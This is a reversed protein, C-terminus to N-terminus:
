TNVRPFLIFNRSLINAETNIVAQNLSVRKGLLRYSKDMIKLIYRSKPIFLYIEGKPDSFVTPLVRKSEAFMLSIRIDSINRGDLSELRVKQLPPKGLSLLYIKVVFLLFIFALIFGNIITFTYLGNSFFIGILGLLFLLPGIASLEYFLSQIDTELLLYKKTRVVSVVLTANERLSRIIFENKRLATSGMIHKNQGTNLIKWKDTMLNIFFRGVSLKKYSIGVDNSRSFVESKHLGHLMNISFPLYKVTKNTQVDWFLISINNKNKRETWKRMFFSLISGSPITIGITGLTFAGIEFVIIMGMFLLPDAIVRSSKHSIILDKTVSCSSIIAKLRIARGNERSVIGSGETSVIGSLGDIWVSHADKVKWSINVFNDTSKNEVVEFREITPCSTNPDIAGITNSTDIFYGSVFNFMATVIRTNESLDRKQSTSKNIKIRSAVNVPIGSINGTASVFDDLGDEIIQAGEVGEQFLTYEVKENSLYVSQSQRIVMYPIEPPNVKVKITKSLTVDTNSVITLFYTGPIYFKFPKQIHLSGSNEVRMAFSSIYDVSSESTKISFTGVFDTLSNGFNDRVFLSLDPQDFINIVSPYTIDIYNTTKLQQVDSTGLVQSNENKDPIDLDLSATIGIDALESLLIDNELNIYSQTSNTNEFIIGRQDKSLLYAINDTSKIDGSDDIVMSQFANRSQYNVTEKFKALLIHSGPHAVYSITSGSEVTVSNVLLLPSSKQNSESTLIHGDDLDNEFVLNGGNKIAINQNSCNIISDTYKFIVLIDTVVEEPIVCTQSVKEPMIFNQSIGLSGIAM